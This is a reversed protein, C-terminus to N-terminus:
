QSHFSEFIYINKATNSKYSIAVSWRDDMDTNTM